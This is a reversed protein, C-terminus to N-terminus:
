RNLYKTWKRISNNIQKNNPKSFEEHIRFTHSLYKTSTLSFIKNKEGKLLEEKLKKM